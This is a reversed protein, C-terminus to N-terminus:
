DENAANDREGFLSTVAEELSQDEDIGTDEPEDEGEPEFVRDWADKQILGNDQLYREHDLGLEFLKIANELVKTEYDAREGPTEGLRQNFWLKGRGLRYMLDQLPSLVYDNQLAAIMARDSQRETEGSSNLGRVNEGVLKTISIGTVMSIRRLGISDADSLNTLQQELTFAEDESDLIGAGYISRQDEMLGFYKIVDKENGTAVMEKFGKVKYFMNSNKELIAPVAREVIGDNILQQYVIEYESIGGYQYIPAELEVPELYTFDIVRSHHIPVGRVYYLNPKMYRPDELNVVPNSVTVMDGSFVRYILSNRDVSDPLPKRLNGGKEQLVIISRGFALQWKVAKRVLKALRTNYFDEDERREFEIAGEALADGAKLRVIKNGIGTKYIENLEKWSLKDSVITNSRGANRRNALESVLSKIGDWFGTNGESM